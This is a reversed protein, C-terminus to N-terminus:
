FYYGEPSLITYPQSQTNIEAKRIQEKLKSETEASFPSHSTLRILILNNKKM